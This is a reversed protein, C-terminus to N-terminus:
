AGLKRIVAELEKIRKYMRVIEDAAISDYDDRDKIYDAIWVWGDKSKVKKIEIDGLDTSGIFEESVIYDIVIREDQKKEMLTSILESVNVKKGKSVNGDKNRMWFTVIQETKYARNIEDVADAEYREMGISGDQSESDM